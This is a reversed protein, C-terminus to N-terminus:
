GTTPVNRAKLAEDCEEIAKQMLEIYKWENIRTFLCAKALASVSDNSIKGAHSTISAIRQAEKHEEPTLRFSVQKFDEKM